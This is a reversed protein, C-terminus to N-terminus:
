GYLTQRKHKFRQAVETVKMFCWCCREPLPPQFTLCTYFLECKPQLCFLYASYEYRANSSQACHVLQVFYRVFSCCGTCVPWWCGTCVPWWCKCYLPVDPHCLWKPSVLLEYRYFVSGSSPVYTGFCTPAQTIFSPIIILAYHQNMVGVTCIFKIKTSGYMKTVYVNLEPGVLHVSYEKNREDNARCTESGNAGMM